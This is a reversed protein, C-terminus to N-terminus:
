SPGSASPLIINLHIKLFHSPTTPVPHLQSPILVAPPCKHTRHHVKPNWFHPSNRSKSCFWNAEWSPSQDMSYTLLYTLLWQVFGPTELTIWERPSLHLCIARTFFIISIIIIVQYFFSLCDQATKYEFASNTEAYYLTDFPVWMSLLIQYSVQIGM